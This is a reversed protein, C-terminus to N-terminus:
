LTEDAVVDAWSPQEGSEREQEKEETVATADVVQRKWEDDVDMPQGSSSGGGGGQGAVESEDPKLAAQEREREIEEEEQFMEQRWDIRKRQLPGFVEYGGMVMIM